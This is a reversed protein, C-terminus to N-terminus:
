KVSVSIEKGTEVKITAFSFNGNESIFAKRKKGNVIFQVYKGPMKVNWLIESGSQNTLTTISHGKHKVSIKNSLVPINKMEAWDSANELRSYTTIRNVTADVEIGMLGRTVHEIVTFSNEPYNRRKNEPSCLEIIMRNAIDSQNNEYFIIPLYSKLEVILKNYNKVYDDVLNKIKAPDSIADYYLIYHSFAQDRGVMFYDFTKDAYLFTRYKEKEIDWWFEDLFQQEKQALSTYKEAEVIEGKTKLIESYAKYAAILSATIDIGLLTEGKGGENYTPIGRKNGFRLKKGNAQKQVHM